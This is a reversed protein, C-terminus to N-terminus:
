TAFAADADCTGFSVFSPLVLVFVVLSIALSDRTDENRQGRETFKKSAM